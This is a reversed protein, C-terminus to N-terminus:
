RPARTKEGAGGAKFDSRPTRRMSQASQPRMSVTRRDTPRALAAPSPMEGLSRHAALQMHRAALRLQGRRTRPSLSFFSALGSSDFPWKIARSPWKIARSESAASFAAHARRAPFSESKGREARTTPPVQSLTLPRALTGFSYRPSPQNMPKQFSDFKATDGFRTIQASIAPFRESVSMTATRGLVSQVVVWWVFRWWPKEAAQERPPWAVLRVEHAGPGPTSTTKVVRRAGLSFASPARTESRPRPNYSGPDGTM